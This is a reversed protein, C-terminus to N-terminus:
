RGFVAGMIDAAFRNMPLLVRRYTWRFPPVVVATWVVALGVLVPKLVFRYVYRSPVVVVAGVIVTAVRWGFTLVQRFARWLPRLVWKWLATLPQIVLHYLLRWALWLLGRATPRLVHRWALLGFPKLVRRWLYREIARQLPKLVQDLLFALVPTLIIGWLVTRLLWGWLFDRFFAWGPVLIWRHVLKAGPVLLRRWSFVLAVLLLRGTLKLLEWLLRFPVLLVVAVGRALWHGATAAAGRRPVPDPRRPPRGDDRSRDGAGEEVTSGDDRVVGSM